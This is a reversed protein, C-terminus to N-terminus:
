VRLLIIQEGALLVGQLHQCCSSMPLRPIVWYLVLVTVGELKLLWTCTVAWPGPGARSGIEDQGRSTGLNNLPFRGAAYAMTMVVINNVVENRLSFAM